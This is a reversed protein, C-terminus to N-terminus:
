VQKLLITYMIFEWQVMTELEKEMAVVDGVGISRGLCDTELNKM